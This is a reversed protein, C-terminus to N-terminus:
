ITEKSTITHKKILIPVQIFTKDVSSASGENKVIMKEIENYVLPLSLLLNYGDNDVKINYKKDLLLSAILSLKLMRDKITDLTKELSQINELEKYEVSNILDIDAQISLAEFIDIFTDKNIKEKSM